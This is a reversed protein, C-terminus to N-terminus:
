GIELTEAEKVHETSSRSRTWGFPQGQVGEAFRGGARGSDFSARNAGTWDLHIGLGLEDVNTMTQRLLPPQKEEDLVLSFTGFPRSLTEFLENCAQHQKSTGEPPFLYEASMPAPPMPQLVASNDVAVDESIEIELQKTGDLMSSYPLLTKMLNGAGPDLKACFSLTALAKGSLEFDDDPEQTPVEHLRKHFSTYLLTCCAMYSQFICLWCHRTVGGEEMILALLRASLRAATIGEDVAETAEGIMELARHPDEKRLELYCSIVRRHLLMIAGLHLLHLFSTTMRLYPDNINTLNQSLNWEPPLTRYWSQLDARLRDITKRHLYPQEATALIKAKLISIKTFETRFFETTDQADSTGIYLVPDVTTVDDPLYGLTAQLWGKCLVLSRWVKKADDWSDQDITPPRQQGYLGLNRAIGLGMDIYTLAVTAKVVINCLVLLACVKIARLPNQLVLDDLFHKAVSYMLDSVDPPIRKRDFHSAIAVISCMECLVPSPVDLLSPQNVLALIQFVEVDTYIHFLMTTRQTYISFAHQIDALHDRIYRLVAPVDIWAYNQQPRSPTSPQSPQLDSLFAPLDVAFRLRQLLHAAESDSGAQLMRLAQMASNLDRELAANRNKLAATRTEGQQTDYVCEKGTAKCVSCTPRTGDCRQKRKRCAACAALILSRRANRQPLNRRPPPPERSPDARPDLPPPQAPLLRRDSAM